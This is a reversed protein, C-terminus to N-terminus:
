DAKINAERIVRAWDARERLLRSAFEDSPGFSPTVGIIAFRERVEPLALAQAFAAQLRAVAAPPTGVPAVIGSWVEASFGPVADAIAPVGPLLPSPKASSVGLIRVKGEKAFGVLPATLTSVLVKIEGTALATTTQSSGQYPVHLMQVGALRSFLETTMRGFSTVGASGFELKGPSAKALDVLERTSRADLSQHVMLVMPALSIVTVPVFDKVPDFGANAGLNPSIVFPNNALFLTHGDPTSRAVYVTAVNGSAGARNEIVIPQGLIKQLPEQLARAQLDQTGGAPSGIVITIPKTPFASQAFPVLPMATLFVGLALGLWRRTSSIRENGSSPPICHPKM